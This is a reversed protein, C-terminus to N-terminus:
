LGDTKDSDMRLKEIEETIKQSTEDPKNKKEDELIGILESYDPDIKVINDKYKEKLVKVIKNHEETFIFYTPFDVITMKIEKLFNEEDTIKEVM